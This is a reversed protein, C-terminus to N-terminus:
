LHHHVMGNQWVVVLCWMWLISLVVVVVVVGCVDFKPIKHVPAMRKHTHASSFPLTTLM